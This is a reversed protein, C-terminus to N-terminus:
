CDGDLSEKMLELGVTFLGLSAALMVHFINLRRVGLFEGQSKVINNGSFYTFIGLIGPLNQQSMSFYLIAATTLYQSMINPMDAISTDWILDMAFMVLATICFLVTPIPFECVDCYGAAMLPLGCDHSICHLYKHAQQLNEYMFKNSYRTGGIIASIGFLVCSLFAPYSLMFGFFACVACTLAILMQTLAVTVSPPM